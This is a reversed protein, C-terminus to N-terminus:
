PILLEIARDWRVHESATHASEKKEGVEKVAYTSKPFIVVNIM